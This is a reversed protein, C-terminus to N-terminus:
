IVDEEDVVVLAVLRCCVHALPDLAFACRNWSSSSSSVSSLTDVQSRLVTGEGDMWGLWGDGLQGRM